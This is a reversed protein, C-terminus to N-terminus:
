HIQLKGALIIGADSLVGCSMGKVVCVEHTLIDVAFCPLTSLGPIYGLHSKTLSLLKSKEIFLDAFCVLLCNPLASIYM